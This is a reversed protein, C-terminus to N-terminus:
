DYRLYGKKMKNFQREVNMVSWQKALVSSLRAPNFGAFRIAADMGTGKVPKDCYFLPANGNTTVEEKYERGAQIM